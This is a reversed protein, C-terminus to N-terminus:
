SLFGIINDLNYTPASKIYEEQKKALEEKTKASKRKEKLVFPIQEPKFKNKGTNAMSYAFTVQRFKEFEIHEWNKLTVWKEIIEQPTYQTYDEKGLM